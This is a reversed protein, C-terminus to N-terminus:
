QSNSKNVTDLIKKTGLFCYLTAFALYLYSLSMGILTDKKIILCFLSFFLTLAVYLAASTNKNKIKMNVNEKSM